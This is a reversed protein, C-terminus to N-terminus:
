QAAPRYFFGPRNDYIWVRGKNTGPSGDLHLPTNSYWGKGNKQFEFEPFLGRPDHSIIRDAEERLHRFDPAATM